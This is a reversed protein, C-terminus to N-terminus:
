MLNLVVGLRFSYNTIPHNKKCVCFTEFTYILHSQHRSFFTPFGRRLNEPYRPV